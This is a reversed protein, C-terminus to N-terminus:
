WSGAAVSRGSSVISLSLGQTARAYYDEAALGELTTDITKLV